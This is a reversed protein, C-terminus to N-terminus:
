DSVALQKRMREPLNRSAERFTLGSMKERHTKIFEFTMEPYHKAIERLAWGIAKRIFFEKEHLLEEFTPLAYEPHLEKKRAPMVHILIAARRTWLHRSKTWKRVKPYIEDPYKMALAGLHRTSLYDTTAWGECEVAIRKLIPLDKPTLESAIRELLMLGAAQEEFFNSSWLDLSLKIAVDKDLKDKKPFVSNFAEVLAATKLGYFDKSSKHYNKHFVSHPKDARKRFEKRLRVLRTDRVIKAASM